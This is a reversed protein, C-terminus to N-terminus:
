PKLQENLEILKEIALNIDSFNHVNGERFDVDGPYMEVQLDNHNLVKPIFVNYSIAGETDVSYLNVNNETMLIQTFKVLMKSKGYGSRRKEFTTELKKIEM